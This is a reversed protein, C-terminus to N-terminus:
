VSWLWCWWERRACQRCRGNRLCSRCCVNGCACRVVAATSFVEQCSRCAFLAETAQSGDRTMTRVDATTFNTGGREDLLSEELAEHFILQKGTIPDRVVRRQVQSSAIDQDAM